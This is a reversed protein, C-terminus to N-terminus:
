FTLFAVLLLASIFNAASKNVISSCKASVSNKRLFCSLVSCFTKFISRWAELDIGLSQTYKQGGIREM